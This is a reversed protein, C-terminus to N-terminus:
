PGPRGALAPFPATGSFFAAALPGLSLGPWFPIQAAALVAFFLVFWRAIPDRRETAMRFTLAAAPALLVRLLYVPVSTDDLFLQQFLVGSFATILAGIACMLAPNDQRLRSSGLFVACACGLVTWLIGQMGASGWFVWYGAAGGVATLLAPLGDLACLMGLVLPQPHRGLSAASLCFGALVYGGYRAGLHFRPDLALRRLSHRLSRVYGEMTTMM